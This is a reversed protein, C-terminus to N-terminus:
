LAYSFLHFLAIVRSGKKLPNLLNIRTLPHAEYPGGVYILSPKSISQFYLMYNNDCSIVLTHASPLLEQDFSCSSPQAPLPLQPKAVAAFHTPWTSDCKTIGEEGETTFVIKKIKMM